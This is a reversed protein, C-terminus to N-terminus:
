DPSAVRFDRDADHRSPGGTLERGVRGRVARDAGGAAGAVRGAERGGVLVMLTPISRIGFRASVDQLSETDVKAVLLRGARAAAVKVLEPAVMRCPGCWEAWFDVLVPVAAQQLLHDLDGTSAVAVPEAVRGITGKCRGCRTEDDLRSFPVRNRQGCAPCAVIVGRADTSATMAGM